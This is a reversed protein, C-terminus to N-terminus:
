NTIIGTSASSPATMSQPLSGSEHSYIIKWDGSLRGFVFTAALSDCVLLPGNKKQCEYSGQWAVIVLDEGLFRLEQTRTHIKEASLGQFYDRMGKRYAATGKFVGKENAILFAPDDAYFALVAETDVREFANILALMKQEVAHKIAAEDSDRVVKSLHTAVCRWQNDRRLWTDTFQYLASTDKGDQTSIEKQRCSVIATDGHLRVKLDSMAFESATYSGSGLDVIDKAKSSIKGEANTCEWDDAELRELTKVDRTLYAKAWANELAILEKEINTNDLNQVTKARTLKMELFPLWTKGDMSIEATRSLTQQDAGVTEKGRMTFTKGGTVCRAEWACIKGDFKFPGQEIYDNGLYVYAFNKAVSDYWCYEVYSSEGAPGKEAYNCEVAFGNFVSRGVMKGTFKAELGVPTAHIIGEYNWDGCWVQLKDMAQSSLNSAQPTKNPEAFALTVLCMAAILTILTKM